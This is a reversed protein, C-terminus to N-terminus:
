ELWDTRTESAQNAQTQTEFWRLTENELFRWHSDPIDELRGPDGLHSYSALTTDGGCELWRNFAEDSERAALMMIEHNGSLCVLKGTRKYGILWDLVAFSNPGRNVYDGLTVITDDPAFPVFAALTTLAKFCGHIDGIALIRMVDNEAFDNLLIADTPSLSAFGVM